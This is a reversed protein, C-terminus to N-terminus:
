LTGTVVAKDNDFLTCALRGDSKPEIRYAYRGPSIFQKFRFNAVKAWPSKAGGGGLAQVFAHIILSGPVVPRGPFHDRYIPDHPDFNFHGKRMTFNTADITM